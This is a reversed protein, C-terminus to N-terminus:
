KAAAAAGAAADALVNTAADAVKAAGKLTEQEDSVIDGNDNELHARIFWHFNELQNLHAIMLDQSVLDLDDLQDMAKRHDEILGEYVKNLAALHQMTSARNLSYDSWTRNKAVFDPTGMPESGLSAIREATEDVMASAADYQPDLMQHVGIFNTGVVNWHIHKLTLTLDILASLRGQLIDAVEDGNEQTMGPLTYHRPM